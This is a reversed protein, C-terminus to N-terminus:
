LFILMEPDPRCLRLANVARWAVVPRHQDRRVLRDIVDLEAPTLHKPM